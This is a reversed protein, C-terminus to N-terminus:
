FEGEGGEFDGGSRNGRRGRQKKQNLRYNLTLRVTRSRWQFNGKSYFDDLITEYRWKRTNFLDRVSLTLTGNNKLIDRSIALDTSFVGQRKGQTTERPARYGLRLQIDTNKWLTIRSTGRGQMTHTDSELDERINSGDTIARYFNLDGNIRWWKVPNYSFTFEFGYANEDKLNEPRSLTSQDDLVTLISREIADTSYRYYISSSLSGKEWYKIHGFEISHTLEPDLNPNGSRQNRSDSFTYFPNLFWFRPRQIRRSYSLQIANEKPLDYTFHASPFLNFYDRANTENTEVLKTIVDSYEGRLGLQYSFKGKKDGIIAYIAHINEDYFFNNSYPIGGQNENLVPQSIGDKIETLDYDNRIDRISSRWGLEFKGEKSIPNTYDIQFLWQKEGEENKSDQVLDPIDAPSYDSQFYKELYDSSQVESDEEFQINATLEQGKKNFIRKYNIAYQLAKEKEIQEDTRITVDTLNDITNLYDLYNVTALNDENNKRYLFSGTLTNKNNFFYDAGLRISNSWGGREHERTLDQILTTGAKVREQYTAGGGKNKRYALGYNAFFNVKKRRYNMNVGIGYNDPQGLTFDFSGNVGKKRDKKLVINIIGTMGEAEYRASPNTIVEVKDILNAPLSRLGNANDIGVLGSPKGDILIRVNDSGRLSVNGEVDVQVSPVNDLIDEASGGRNALDKGVNFVKKDLALQMQSREAHVEVESLTTADASLVIDGLDVELQEKSLAINEIVKTQFSLFEIKAFFRGPRTEIMFLGKANTIGGTIMSSDRRSFLTVTAYDLPQGSDGDLVKGKLTAKPPPGNGRKGQWKRNNQASVFPLNALFCIIFCVIISYDKM